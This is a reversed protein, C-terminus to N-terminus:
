RHVHLFTDREDGVLNLVIDNQYYDTYIDVIFVIM